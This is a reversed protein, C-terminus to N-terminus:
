RSDEALWAKVVQAAAEPDDNILKDIDNKIKEKEKEEPTLKADVVDELTIQDEVMSDFGPEEEAEETNRRSKRWLLFLVLLSIGALVWPAATRFIKTLSSEQKAHPPTYFDMFAVSINNKLNVNENTRNERLGSATAVINRITDERAQQTDGLNLNAVKASNVVVAVTFYDYKVDGQASQTTTKTEDLEYNKTKDSKDTTSTGNQTSTQSYQSVNTSTGPVNAQGTQNTDSETTTHESRVFPGGADHAYKDEVKNSNDFNLDVNVRVVSNGPGLTQDLMSQIAEQKEKEYENKMTMQQKVLDTSGSAADTSSDSILNGDQDVIVVNKADLNEVSNAVLHIIGRVEEPTLTEGTKTTIAISASAKAQQDSYLSEQPLVLHVRAAKVKDLSEITRALEGQMAEQYKVQKDTETEGFNNGSQFLEFGSQGEPLNNDAMKLRTSYKIADPVLITNGGDELKYAIKDEDLKSVIAAADKTSLNSYLISYNVKHANSISVIIAIIIMLAAGSFIVKKNLTLGSWIDRVRGGLQRLNKLLVQVFQM